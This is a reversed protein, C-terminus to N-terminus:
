NKKGDKEQVSCSSVKPILTRPEVNVPKHQIQQLGDDYYVETFGGLPFDKRLPHGVFDTETLIRKLDPHGAFVIGFLDFAEREYWNASNWVNIVSPMIPADIGCLTCFKESGTEKCISCFKNSEICYSKIRIRLNNKLSLLHYVVAFRSKPGHEGYHLYDVGSLDVLQEFYYPSTKLIECILVLDTSLIEMTLEENKLTCIITEKFQQTLKEVIYNLQM